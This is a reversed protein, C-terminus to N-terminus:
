ALMSRAWLSQGAEHLRRFYHDELTDPIHIAAGTLITRGGPGGLDPRQPFRRRLADAEEPRVNALAALHLLEGDFTTLLSSAAGCLKLANQTITDFVPQVDTRSSSIVRLIESTATQQELAESVQAHATTLAQNKKQLETFLRVNEIAIVAQDAFTKMLEIERPAFPGPELRTASILGIPQGERLMPVALNARWGRIRAIERLTPSQEREVDEIVKVQRARVAESFFEQRQPFVRKMEEASGPLGGHTAAVYLSDSDLLFVTTAWGKLLRTASEAIADFVPQTDTPLSSIVRLIESTATQQEHSESVQAHAATLQERADGLERDRTHLQSLTEALRKELDRVRAGDDKSSKRAVPPKAGVKPKAPKPGRGM